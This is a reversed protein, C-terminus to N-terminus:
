KRLEPVFRPSAVTAIGVWPEFTVTEVRKDLTTPKTGYNHYKQPITWLHGCENMASTLINFMVCSTCAQVSDYALGGHKVCEQARARMIGEQGFAIGRSCTTVHSHVDNDIVPESCRSRHGITAASTFLYAGDFFPNLLVLM